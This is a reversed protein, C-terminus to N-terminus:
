MAMLSLSHVLMIHDLQPYIVTIANVCSLKGHLSNLFSFCFVKLKGALLHYGIVNTRKM